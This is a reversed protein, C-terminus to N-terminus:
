RSPSRAPRLAFDITLSGAADLQVSRPHATRSDRCSPASTTVARHLNPFTYFGSADTCPRRATGDAARPRSPSAPSSRGREFGERRRFDTGPRVARVGAAGCPVTGPYLHTGPVVAKRSKGAHLEMAGGRSAVRPECQAACLFAAHPYSPPARFDLEPLKLQAFCSLSIPRSLRPVPDRRPSRVLLRVGQICSPPEQVGGERLAPGATLPGAGVRPRRAPARRRHPRRRGALRSRRRGCLQRPQVGCVGAGRGAAGRDGGGRARCPDAQSGAADRRRVCRPRAGEVLFRSRAARRSHVEPSEGGHRQGRDDAEGEQRRSRHRHHYRGACQRGLDGERRRSTSARSEGAPRFSLPKGTTARRAAGGPGPTTTGEFITMTASNVNSTVIQKGDNSVWIM